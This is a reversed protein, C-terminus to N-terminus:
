GKKMSYYMVGLVLGVGSMVVIPNIGGFINTFMDSQPMYASGTQQLQNVADIHKQMTVAFEGIAMVGSVNSLTFGSSKMGSVIKLNETLEKDLVKHEAYLSQAQQAITPSNSGMLTQLTSEAVLFQGVKAKVQAEIQDPLSLQGLSEM